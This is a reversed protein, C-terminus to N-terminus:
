AIVLRIAERLEESAPYRDGMEEKPVPALSDWEYSKPPNAVSWRAWVLLRPRQLPRIAMHLGGTDVLINTGKPGMVEEVIEPPPDLRYDRGLNDDNTLHTGRQYIHAGDDRHTVNSGLMFITMQKPDDGDRHWAQTETYLPGGSPASWFANLSYLRPFEGGFYERALDFFGLAYEFWHPAKVVAEFPPAFIRWGASVAHDFTAWPETAKGAVHANYIPGSQIHAMFADVKEVSFQPLRVIGERRLEEIIETM